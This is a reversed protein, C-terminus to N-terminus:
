GSYVPASCRCLWSRPCASCRRRSSRRTATRSVHRSCSQTRRIYLKFSRGHSRSPIQQRSPRLEPRRIRPATPIRTIRRQPPDQPLPTSPPYASDLPYSPSTWTWTARLTSWIMLRRTKLSKQVAEFPLPHPSQTDSIPLPRSLIAILAIPACESVVYQRPSKEM